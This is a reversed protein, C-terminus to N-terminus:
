KHVTYILSSGVSLGTAGGQPHNFDWCFSWLCRVYIDETKGKLRRCKKMWGGSARLSGWRDWHGTLGSGAVGRQGEGGVWEGAGWVGWWDNESVSAWIRNSQAGAKMGRNGTLRSVKGNDPGEGAQRIAGKELKGTTEWNSSGPSEVWVLLGTVRWHECCM